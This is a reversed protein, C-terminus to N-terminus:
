RFAAGRQCYASDTFDIGALHRLEAVATNGHLIQRLFLYTIVVPTLTRERSSRNLNNCLRDILRKPVLSDLNTKLRQVAKSITIM